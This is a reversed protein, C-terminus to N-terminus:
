VQLFFKTSLDPIILYEVGDLYPLPNGMGPGVPDTEWYNDNRELYASSGPVFDKLIFPGSGCSNRWDTLDGYKEWLEPPYISHYDM